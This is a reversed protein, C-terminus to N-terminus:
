TYRIDKEKLGALAKARSKLRWDGSTILMRDLTDEDVGGLPAVSKGEPRRDLDYGFRMFFALVNDWGKSEGGDPRKVLTSIQDFKRPDNPYKGLLEDTRVTSLYLAVGKERYKPHVILFHGYAVKLKGEDILDRDEKPAYPDNDLWCQIGALVWKENGQEDIEKTFAIKSTRTVDIKKNEPPTTEKLYPIKTELKFSGPPILFKKLARHFEDLQRGNGWSKPIHPTVNEDYVQDRVDKLRFLQAIPPIDRDKVKRIAFPREAYHIIEFEPTGHRGIIKESRHSVLAEIKLDGNGRRGSKSVIWDKLKEIPSLAGVQYPIERTNIRGFEVM